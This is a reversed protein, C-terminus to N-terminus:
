TSADETAIIELVKGANNKDDFSVIQYFATGGDRKKTHKIRMNSQLGQFFRVRVLVRRESDIKEARLLDRGARNVVSGWVSKFDTYQPVRHGTESEDVTAVQQFVLRETLESSRIM